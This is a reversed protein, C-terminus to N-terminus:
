KKRPEFIFKFFNVVAPLAGEDLSHGGDYFYQVLPQKAPWWTSGDKNKVDEGKEGFTAKMGDWFRTVVRFNVLTDDKGAVIMYPKSPANRMYVGGPACMGAFGAFEANRAGALIWTFQGGNSHGTVFTRDPEYLDKEKLWSLIADVFKLDRDDNEGVGKQWGPFKGEKDTMGIVGPEGKGYIVWAEPWAKPVNFKASFQSPRGGHGHFALVIPPKVSLAVTPPYVVFEREMGSVLVSVTEPKLEINPSSKDVLQLFVASALIM